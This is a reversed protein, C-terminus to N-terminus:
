PRQIHHDVAHVPQRAVPRALPAVQAPTTRDFPTTAKDDRSTDIETADDRAPEPEGFLWNDSDRSQLPRQQLGAILDNIATSELAMACLEKCPGSWVRTMSM